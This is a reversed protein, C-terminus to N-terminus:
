AAGLVAAVNARHVEDYPAWPILTGRALDDAIVDALPTEAREPHQELSMLFRVYSETAAILDPGYGGSSIRGPDGHNPLIRQPKLRALRVLDALHAGLRGPESVYTIPDELADGALLTGTGPLWVLTEDDSHIDFHILEVRRSGLSLALRGEFTETPGVLPRIAPAGHHTGAEIGERNREIHAATLSNAIIRADAFTATGAIHDLHHHSIVVTFRRVGMAELDARVARAHPLSTHCDYVLAEDGDVLAYSATGLSLAGDDIWNPQPYARYGPVRGDYWAHLGPAPRLRRLHPLGALGPPDPESAGTTRM